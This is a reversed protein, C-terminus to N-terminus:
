KRQEAAFAALKWGEDARLALPKEVYVDKGAALIRLALDYHQSAPAAIVVADIEQDTLLNDVNTVTRVNYMSRAEDLAEQRPDCVVRLAGVEYFNRVLNKGWYGCGLVAVGPKSLSM